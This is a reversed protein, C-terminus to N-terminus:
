RKEAMFFLALTGPGSHSGITPGVDHILFSEFGFREKILLSLKDADERCDAHSIFIQKNKDRYSGMREDMMDVLAHLSKKRGRAKGVPILRGEDNVCLLPKVKIMTGLLASAKSVRGGRHLHNLDDVTFVHAVHLKNEEVLRYTEEITKGEKKLAVALSVIYGQGLSAALSDIVFIKAHPYDEMAQRAALAASNYSGSLASSFAIYLVDKGEELYPRIVRSVDEPNTQATTPMAGARVRDYFEKTPLSNDKHYTKGELTYTLSVCGIGEELYYADPLDANNDTVIVFDKM